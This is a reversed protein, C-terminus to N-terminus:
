ATLIKMLGMPITIHFLRKELIKLFKMKHPTHPIEFYYIPLIMEMLTKLVTGGEAMYANLFFIEMFPKAPPKSNWPKPIKHGWCPKALPTPIQPITKIKKLKFGPMPHGLQIQTRWHQM